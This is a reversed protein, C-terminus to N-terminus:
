LIEIKNEWFFSKLFIPNVFIPNVFIPSFLEKKAKEKIKNCYFLFFRSDPFNKKGVSYFLVLTLSFNYM